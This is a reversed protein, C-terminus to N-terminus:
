LRSVMLCWPCGVALFNRGPVKRLSGQAPIRSRKKLEFEHDGLLLIPLLQQAAFYLQLLIIRRNGSVKM